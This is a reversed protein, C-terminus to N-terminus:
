GDNQMRRANQVKGFMALRNILEVLLKHPEQAFAGAMDQGDAFDFVGAALFDVRRMAFPSHEVAHGFQIGAWHGGFLQLRNITFDHGARECQFLGQADGIEARFSGERVLGGNAPEAGAQFVGRLLGDRVNEGLHLLAARIVADYRHFIGGFAYDRV